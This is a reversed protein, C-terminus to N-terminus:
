GKFLRPLFLAIDPFAILIAVCIWMMILFPLIGRFMESIPVDGAVSQLALVNIGMPPTIVAMEFMLVMIVGYWIPDYGMATIVPYFIPVTLILMPIAPVICGLFLYIILIAILVILPFISIRIVFNALEMPLKSTSLFPGFIEAGILISICIASIKGGDVFSSMVGRWKLRRRVLGIVLAGFAGISGGETPTFIGIYMGGIVLVFLALTAWLGKVSNIKERITTKPGAPGLSPNRRSRIYISSMFLLTLLIGPIIGAIFLLAISQDTLLAYLIFALSPPILVGLTGGAAVSGTALGSDYRYRKMEPLAVTGMTVATAMSDGCVSAFGACGAITGMALGGPRQGIWKYATDYLEKGLGSYFCFEGMLVFLPIVSFNYNSATNFPSSGMISLGANPGRLYCMGLFGVLILSTMIPMGSLFAFVLIALGIVGTTLPDIRWNLERLWAAAGYFLLFVIGGIVIWTAAQRWNKCGRGLNHLLDALFVLCLLASSFAVVLAFYPVPLRLVATVTNMQSLLASYVISRWVVVLFLILSLLVIMSEIILQARQPFKSVLSDIAIHQKKLAAFPIGFLVTLLLLFGTIEISGIVPLNLLFRSSVDVVTILMMMALSLVGLKNVTVILPQSSSELLDAMKSLRM